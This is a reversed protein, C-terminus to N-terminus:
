KKNKKVIIYCSLVEGTFVDKLCDEDLYVNVLEKNSDMSINVGPGVNYKLEDVGGTISNANNKRKVKNKRRKEKKPAVADDPGDPAVEDMVNESIVEEIQHPTVGLMSGITQNRYNQYLDMVFVKFPQLTDSDHHHHPQDHHHHSKHHVKPAFVKEALVPQESAFDDKVTLDSSMQVFEENNFPTFHPYEAEFNPSFHKAARDASRISAINLTICVLLLVKPRGSMM